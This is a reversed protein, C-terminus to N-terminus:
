KHLMLYEPHYTSCLPPALILMPVVVALEANEAFVTGVVIGAPKVSVAAANATSARVATLQACAQCRRGGRGLGRRYSSSCWSRGSRSYRLHSYDNERVVANCGGSCVNNAAGECAEVVLTFGADAPDLNTTVAMNATSSAVNLVDMLRPPKLKM